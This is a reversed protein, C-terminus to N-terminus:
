LRTLTINSFYRVSFYFAQDPFEEETMNKANPHAFGIVSGGDGDAPNALRRANAHARSLLEGDAGLM